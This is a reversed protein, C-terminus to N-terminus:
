VLRDLLPKRLRAYEDDNLAGDDRLSKLRLLRDTIDADTATAPSPGDVRVTIPDNAFINLGSEGGDSGTPSKHVANMAWVLSGLWGIGTGGFVINIVLILWRNPHKRAFAVISPIVYLALIVVMVVAYQVLFTDVHDSNIASQAPAPGASLLGVLGAGTLAALFRTRHAGM